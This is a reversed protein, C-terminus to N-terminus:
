PKRRQKRMSNNIENANRRWGSWCIIVRYVRAAKDYRVSTNRNHAQWGLAVRCRQAIIHKIPVVVLRRRVYGFTLKFTAVRHQAVHTNRLTEFESQKKWLSVARPPRESAPTSKVTGVYLFNTFVNSPFASSNKQEFYM